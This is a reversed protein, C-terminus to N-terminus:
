TGACGFAPLFGRQSHPARLVLSNPSPNELFLVSISHSHRNVKVTPEARTLRLRVSQNMAPLRERISNNRVIHTLGNSRDLSPHRDELTFPVDQDFIRRVFPHHNVDQILLFKSGFLPRKKFFLRLRIGNALPILFLNRVGDALPIHVGNALPIMYALWRSELM